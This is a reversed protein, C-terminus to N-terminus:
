GRKNMWRFRMRQYMMTLFEDEDEGYIKALSDKLKANRMSAIEEDTYFNSLYETAYAVIEMTKDKWSYFEGCVPCKMTRKVARAQIAGDVFVGSGCHLHNRDEEAHEGYTKVWPYDTRNEPLDTKARFKRNAAIQYQTLVVGKETKIKKPDRTLNGIFYIQNSIEKHKALYKAAEEDSGMEAIKEAFIPEIYALTGASVNAQDHGTEACHPCHSTKNINRTTFVGKILVIDHKKWNSMETAIVPTKTIIVPIDHRAYSSGDEVNRPSRVVDVYCMAYAYGGDEAAKLKPEKYVQGLLFVTNQRAM